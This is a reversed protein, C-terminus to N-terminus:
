RGAPATKTGNLRALVAAKLKVGAQERRAVVNGHELTDGNLPIALADTEASFLLTRASSRM